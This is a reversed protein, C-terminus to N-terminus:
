HIDSYSGCRLLWITNQYIQYCLLWNSSVYIEFCGPSGLLHRKRHHPLPIDQRLADLVRELKEFDVCRRRLRSLDCRYSKTSNLIYKM